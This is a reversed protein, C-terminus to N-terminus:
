FYWSGGIRFGLGTFPFSTQLPYETLDEGPGLTQYEENLDQTVLEPPLSPLLDMGDASFETVERQHPVYVMNTLNAELTLSLHEGLQCSVGLRSFYGVATGDRYRVERTAAAGNFDSESVVDVYGWGLITGAGAYPCLLREMNGRVVIGPQFRFQTARFTEERLSYEARFLDEPFEFTIGPSRYYNGELDIGLHPTIFVGVGVGTSFGKGLTIQQSVQTYDTDDTYVRREGGLAFQWGGAVRVYLRKEKYPERPSASGRSQAYSMLNTMSLLLACCLLYPTTCCTMTKPLMTYLDPRM